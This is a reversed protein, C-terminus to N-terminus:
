TGEERERGSDVRSLPLTVTMMTGEGERSDAAVIGGHMDVINHVIALGLGVGGERTTYFPDFIRKIAEPPIGEGKDGVIIEVDGAIGGLGSPFSVRTEITMDGGEPMAQLANLILNLFVQKLMEEDAAIWPEGETLDISLRVRENEMIPRAFSLLEEILRHLNIQKIVPQPRRTFLLLNSVRNNVHRVAKIIEAARDRSRESGPEKMVLSAFLEISGLPNRIEHAITTAMEELAAFKESRKEMEELRSLRTVDRIVFITERSGQDPGDIVNSSVELIRGAVRRRVGQCSRGPVVSGGDVIEPFIDGASRGKWESRDASRDHVGSFLGASENVLNIGGKEDTVVIGTTLNELITELYSRMLEKENLARELELNKQELELNILKFKEELGAFAEQMRETASNFEEFSRKLLLAEENGSGWETKEMLRIGKMVVCAHFMGEVEIDRGYPRPM